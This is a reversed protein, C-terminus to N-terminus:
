NLKIFIQRCLNKETYVIPCQKTNRRCTYERNAAMSRRFFTQCNRCANISFHIGVAVSTGCILCSDTM